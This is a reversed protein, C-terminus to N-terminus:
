GKARKPKAVDRKEETPKTALLEQIEERLSQTDGNVVALAAARELLDKMRAEWEQQTM